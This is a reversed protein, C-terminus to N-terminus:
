WERWRTPMPSMQRSHLSGGARQPLKARPQKRRLQAFWIQDIGIREALEVEELQRSPADGLAYGVAQHSIIPAV